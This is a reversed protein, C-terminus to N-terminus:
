SLGTPMLHEPGALLSEKENQRCVKGDKDRKQYYQIFIVHHCIYYLIYIDMLVLLHMTEDLEPHDAPSYIGFTIGVFRPV